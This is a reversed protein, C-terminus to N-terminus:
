GAGEGPPESRGQLWAVFAALDGDFRGDLLETLATQRGQYRRLSMWLANNWPRAVWRSAGAVDGLAALTAKGQAFVEERARLKDARSGPGAYLAELNALVGELAGRLVGEDVLRRRANAVARSNAGYRDVLFGVGGRDGVLTAFNENWAVHGPFFVVAHAMEHLVLRAVDFTDGGLASGFVPDEFWGLTSFARVERRLVDLDEDVELAEAMARSEAEDFFGLYPVVGVVPFWWTRAEFRDRASASVNWAIPGDGTDYWTRYLGAAQRMGLTDVGFRKAARVIRLKRRLDPPLAPDHLAEDVPRAALLIDAQALGQRTVYCGSLVLAALSAWAAARTM